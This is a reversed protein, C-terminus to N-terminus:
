GVCCFVVVCCLVCCLVVVCCLVICCLMVIFVICCLVVCCLVVCCLVVCPDFVLMVGVGGGISFRCVTSIVFFYGDVSACRIRAYYPYPVSLHVTIRCYVCIPVSLVLLSVCQRM